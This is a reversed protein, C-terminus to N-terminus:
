YYLPKPLLRSGSAVETSHLDPTAVAGGRSTPRGGGLALGRLRWGGVLPRIGGGQAWGSSSHTNKRPTCHAHRVSHVHGLPNDLETVSIIKDLLDVMVLLSEEHDNATM